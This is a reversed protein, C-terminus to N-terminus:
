EQVSEMCLNYDTEADTVASYYLATAAAEGLVSPEIAIALTMAIVYNRTARAIALDFAKRCDEATSKTQARGYEHKFFYVGAIVRVFILKEDHSFRTDADIRNIIAEEDWEYISEPAWYSDFYELYKADIKDLDYSFVSSAVDYSCSKTITRLDAYHQYYSLMKQYLLDDQPNLSSNSCGSFFLPLFIVCFSFITRTKM